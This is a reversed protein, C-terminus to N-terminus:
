EPVYPEMKTSALFQELSNGEMRFLHTYCDCDSSGFGRVSPIMGSGVAARALECEDIYDPYSVYAHSDVSITTLYDIHWRLVKDKRLHRAVRHELGCLASDVYCYTGKSFFFTGLAGIRVEADAGLTFIIVYTGKRRM